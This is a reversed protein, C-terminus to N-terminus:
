CHNLYLSYAFIGILQGLHHGSKIFGASQESYALSSLILRVFIVLNWKRNGNYVSRLSTIELSRLPVCVIQQEPPGAGPM